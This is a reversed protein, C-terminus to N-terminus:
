GLMELLTDSVIKMRATYHHESLTRNKGAMAVQKCASPNELYYYIKAIADQSDSYVAAESDCRFITHLNSKLDTLLLAGCGTAEYMRMNNAYHLAVEGHRNIVIKARGFLKYMDMGWAQGKYSGNRLIPHSAPLTDYGYGYFSVLNRFENSINEMMGMGAKWHSPWGVGGVFVIDLDREVTPLRDIIRSEFALKNFITRVGMARFQDVYHPFSTFLVDFQKVNDRPPMPCSCQGAILKVGLERRIFAYEAPSFFSLDQMFLVKPKFRVIQHKVVDQANTNNVQHEQCWLQQLEKFNAIVDIADWGHRRLNYSYFDSTGFAFGLVEKLAVEYSNQEKLKIDDIFDPYYTDCVMIRPQEYEM